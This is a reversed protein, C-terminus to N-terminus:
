AAELYEDFLPTINVTRDWTAPIANRQRNAPKVAETIANYLRWLSYGDEAHEEHSPNDWESLARGMQSPILVNRRLCEVLMADGVRKTIQQMRYDEFRKQQLAVMPGVQQCAAWILDGIRKDVNTTQKTHFSVEGSFALNDCVFVRSGVALARSISQDYSGRLGITTSYGDNDGVNMLGFMRTPYGEDDSLVGYAEDIVPMGFSNLSNTILEIDEIFPRVVHRPGMPAPTPMMAIENRTSANAGCHLMLGNMDIDGTLQTTISLTM